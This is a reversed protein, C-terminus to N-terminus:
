KGLHDWFLSTTPNRITMMVIMAITPNDASITMLNRTTTVNEAERPARFWLLLLHHVAGKKWLKILCGTIFVFLNFAQTFSNYNFTTYICYLTLYLFSLLSIILVVTTIYRKIKNIIGPDHRTSVGVNRVGEISPCQSILIGPSLCAAANIIPKTHSSNNDGHALVNERKVSWERSNRSPLSESSRIAHYTYV